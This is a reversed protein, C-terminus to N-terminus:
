EDLLGCSFGVVRVMFDGKQHEGQIWGKGEWRENESRSIFLVKLCAM